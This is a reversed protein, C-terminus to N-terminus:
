ATLKKINMARAGNITVLDLDKDFDEEKMLQAMHIGNDLTNM